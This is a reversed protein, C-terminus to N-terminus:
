LPADPDPVTKAEGRVVRERLLLYIGSAIVVAGGVLTAHDPVDGFVMWGSMVMWVLQTYIFPALISAPAYKHALILCWHGVAGAAGMALMLGWSQWGSPWAWDFPVLPAMLVTGVAGVYFFTITPGDDRVLIRAMINGVAYLVAGGVSLIMAWHFGSLGPQTVIIVGSFGVVIAITRRIGVWEGLIPGALLAVMLPTSFMISVTQALQLYHLAVFNLITSGLIVAGRGVQMWPRRPRLLRPTSWPNVLPLVLLFNSVYRAWVIEPTPLSHGLWKAASDLCAFFFGAAVM